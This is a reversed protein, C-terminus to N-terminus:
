KLLEPPNFTSINIKENWRVSNIDYETLDGNVYSIITQPVLIGDFSKYHDMITSVTVTGVAPNEQKEIRRRLLYTKKDVFMTIPQCNFEKKPQCIIKYCPQGMVKAEGDITISSFVDKAKKAPNLFAAQFKLTNLEDGKLDRYGRKTSYEWGSKGDFAKVLSVDGPIIIDFRLMDPNQIKVTISARKNKLSRRLLTGKIIQSTISDLKGQPDVKTRMKDLLSEVQPSFVSQCGSFVLLLSLCILIKAFYKM